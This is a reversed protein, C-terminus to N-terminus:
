HERLELSMIKLRPLPRSPCHRFFLLVFVISRIVALGIRAPTSADSKERRYLWFSLWVLVAAGGLFIFVAWSQPLNTFTFELEADDPAKSEDVGFIKLLTASALFM